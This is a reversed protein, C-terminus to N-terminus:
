FEILNIKIPKMVNKITTKISYTYQIYEYTSFAYNKFVLHKNNENKFTNDNTLITFYM